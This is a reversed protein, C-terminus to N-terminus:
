KCPDYLELNKLDYRDPYEQVLGDPETTCSYDFLVLKYTSKDYVKLLYYQGKPLVVLFHKTLEEYYNDPIKGHVVRLFEAEDLTDPLQRGFEGKIKYAPYTAATKLLAYETEQQESLSACSVLPLFFILFLIPLIKRMDPM